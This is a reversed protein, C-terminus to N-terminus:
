GGADTETPLLYDRLEDYSIVFHDEKFTRMDEVFLVDIGFDNLCYYQRRDVIEFRYDNEFSFTYEDFLGYSRETKRMLFTMREVVKEWDADFLEEIQLEEGTKSSYIRAVYDQSFYCSTTGLKKRYIISVYSEDAYAYDCKFSCITREEWEEVTNYFELQEAYFQEADEKIKQNITEAASVADSIKPLVIDTDMGIGRDGELKEEYTIDEELYGNRYGDYLFGGDWSTDVLVSAQMEEFIDPKESSCDWIHWLSGRGDDVYMKFFCNGNLFHIQEVKDYLTFEGAIGGKVFRETHLKTDAKCQFIGYKLPKEYKKYCLIYLKGDKVTYHFEERKESIRPVEYRNEEGTEQNLRVIELRYRKNKKEWEDSSYYLYEETPIMRSFYRDYKKKINGDVDTVITYSQESNKMFAELYLNKGDTNVWTCKGEYLIQMEGDETCSFVKDEGSEGRVLCYFVNGIPFFRIIEEDCVVELRSGDTKIRCLRLEQSWNTFYIWEGVAYLEWPVQETVCEQNAGNEDCRYLYDYYVASRYYYFGDKYAITTQDLPSIYPEESVDKDLIVAADTERVSANESFAEEPVDSTDTKRVDTGDSKDIILSFLIVTAITLLGVIGVLLFILSKKM